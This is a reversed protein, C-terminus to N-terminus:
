AETPTLGETEQCSFGDHSYSVGFRARFRAPSPYNTALELPSLFPVCSM